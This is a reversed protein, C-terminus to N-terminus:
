KLVDVMDGGLRSLTEDWDVKNLLDRLVKEILPHRKPSAIFRDHVTVKGPNLITPVVFFNEDGKVFIGGLSYLIFVAMIDPQEAIDKYRVLVKPFRTYMFYVMDEPTWVHTAIKAGAKCNGLIHIHNPVTDTKWTESPLPLRIDAM